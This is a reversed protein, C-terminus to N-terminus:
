FPLQDCDPLNTFAGRVSRRQDATPNLKQMRRCAQKWTTEHSAVEQSATRIAADYLRGADTYQKRILLVEAMTSTWWYDGARPQTGVIQQVKVAYEDAKALDEPSGLLVSKAAANIGTYYDDPAREFAEAHLDRSQRLDALEHSIAYRDMWTRGYIGLTESDREGSEYLEGLIQQASDLDDRAGRRALALAYLQKPRIARPFLQRAKNLVALADANQKM